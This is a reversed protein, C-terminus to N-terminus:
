LWSVPHVDLIVRFGKSLFHVFSVLQHSASPVGPGPTPPAAWGDPILPKCARVRGLLVVGVPSWSLPTSILTGGRGAGPGQKRVRLAAGTAKPALSSREGGGAAAGRPSRPRTGPVSAGPVHHEDPQGPSAHPRILAPFRAAWPGPEATGAARGQWPWGPPWRCCWTQGARRPSSCTEGSPRQTCNTTSPGATLRCRSAPCLSAVQGSGTGPGLTSPLPELCGIGGQVGADESGAGGPRWTGEWPGIPRSVRDGLYSPPAQWYLEPFAEPVRRLDARLLTAEAQREHPAM